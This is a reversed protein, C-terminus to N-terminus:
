LNALLDEPSVNLLNDAKNVLFEVCASFEDARESANAYVTLQDLMFSLVEPVTKVKQFKDLLIKAANTAQEVTKGAHEVMVSIYDKGFDEWVEKSIGGGSREPKPMNAIAEWTLKDYPFNLANLSENDSIFSRATQTVVNEVSDMLLQLQSGGAELIAIIGNVTPVPIPLELPDRKYEVGNDDKTTKFRFIVPKVAVDFKLKSKVDACIEKLEEATPVPTAESTTTERPDQEINTM